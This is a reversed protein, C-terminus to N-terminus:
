QIAAFLNDSLCTVCALFDAIGEGALENGRENFHGGIPFYRNM